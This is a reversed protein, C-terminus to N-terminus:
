RHRVHLVVGEREGEVGAVCDIECGRVMEGGYVQEEPSVETSKVKAFPDGTFVVMKIMGYPGTVNLSILVNKKKELCEKFKEYSFDSNDMTYELKKTWERLDETKEGGGLQVSENLNKNIKSMQYDTMDESHFEIHLDKAKEKRKGGIKFQPESADEPIPAHDCFLQYDKDAINLLEPLVNFFFYCASKKQVLFLFNDAIKKALQDDPVNRQCIGKITGILNKILGEEHAWHPTKGFHPSLLQLQSYIRMHVKGDYFLRSM